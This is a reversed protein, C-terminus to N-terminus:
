PVVVLQVGDAVVFGDTGANSLTITVEGGAPLEVTCLTALGDGRRQDVTGQWLERDGLKVSVPVNTARNANPPSLLVIRYKGASELKPRWTISLEGKAGNQDHLYGTGVLRAQPITSATWAGRQEGDADDLVIGDLKLPAASLPSWGLIQGAMRLKVQLKAVDIDQISEGSALAQDAATAASQGLVMFVPEMRASGYAIHTSSLCVPVLLNACEGRRPVIARYAVPYPGAVGYEVNGENRVVGDVVVRQCNHSDMGYSALGVSDQYRERHRCHHETIVADAVMRRAERIYLQHPWGGTDQFEDAPLGWTSVQERIAQPVREDHCLFYMLGQQYNVHDAIIRERTARDGDPYDYNAGIHDTSFGGYNNTDTKGNPMPTSLRLVDFVGGAIYRALLAYREPNYGAPQPFPLRDAAKTLCMRYCYAQVRHDATGNPELGGHAIGMLLGSAPNGPEVYPDVPVNFNHNRHGYHVGNLTEGYQANSERGVTYSVKAAAMLDGEYTCDIFMGASVTLGDTRLVVLRGDRLEVGTLRQERHVPVKAEALYQELIQAAVHPEFRFGDSCAKVQASDEGYTTVYYARVRRYFDRSLGGIAERRGSDTAGLGGSTLGGVHRGPELLAVRRGLRAAQVAAMVGASTAGYICIDAELNAMAASGSAGAAARESALWAGAALMSGIAERRNVAM